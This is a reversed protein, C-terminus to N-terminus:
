RAHGAARLGEALKKAAIDYASHDTWAARPQLVDDPVGDGPNPLALGFAPEIATEAKHLSGNHIADLIARTHALSIRKGVGYPGGTWGTNILWAAARHKELQAALLEAYKRPHWVLFPAGFCASFTAQPEKIGQETGAVKASYGALFHEMLQEASLKAV